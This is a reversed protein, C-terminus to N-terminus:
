FGATKGQRRWDSNALIKGHGDREVAAACSGIGEFGTVKHGISELSYIIKDPFENEREIKMPM